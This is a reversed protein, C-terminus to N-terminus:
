GREIAFPPIKICLVSRRTKQRIYSKRPDRM